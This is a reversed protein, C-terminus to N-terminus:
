SQSLFVTRTASSTIWANPRFVSPAIATYCSGARLTRGTRAITTSAPSRAARAGAVNLKPDILQGRTDAENLPM